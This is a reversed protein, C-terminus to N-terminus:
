CPKSRRTEKELRKELDEVEKKAGERAGWESALCMMLGLGNGPEDEFRAEDYNKDLEILKKAKKILHRTLDYKGLNMAIEAAHCVYHENNTSAFLKIATETNGYRECLEAYARLRNENM